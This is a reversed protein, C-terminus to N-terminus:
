HGRVPVDPRGIGRALEERRVEAALDRARDGASQTATGNPSRRGETSRLVWNRWTADWDHKTADRGSKATWHNVFKELERSGDAESLGHSRAFEAGEPTPMWNAPLRTARSQASKGKEKEAETESDTEAETEPPTESVNRKQQRFRKVRETSVDSQFQRRQWNHPAFKGTEIEDFLGALVLATVWEAARHLNVRLEIAVVSMAPLIGGHKSAICLLNFWARHLKDPLAILKPDHLAEDYARWWRSM